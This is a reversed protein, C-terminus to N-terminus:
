SGAAAYRVGPWRVTTRCIISPSHASASLYFTPRVVRELSMACCHLIRPQTPERGLSCLDDKAMRFNKAMRTTQIRNIALPLRQNKVTSTMTLLRDHSNTTLQGSICTARISPAASYKLLHYQQWWKSRLVSRLATAVTESGKIVRLNDIYGIAIKGNEV